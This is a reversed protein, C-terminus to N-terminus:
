SASEPPPASPPPQHLSLESHLSQTTHPLGWTAASTPTSTTPRRAPSSRRRASVVSAGPLVPSSSPFLSSTDVSTALTEPADAPESSIEDDDTNCSSAVRSRVMEADGGTTDVSCRVDHFQQAARRTPRQARQPRRQARTDSSSAAATILGLRGRLARVAM